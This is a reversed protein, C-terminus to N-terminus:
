HKNNRIIHIINTCITCRTGESIQASQIPTLLKTSCDAIATRVNAAFGTPWGKHKCIRAGNDNVVIVSDMLGSVNDKPVLIYTDCRKAVHYMTFSSLIEDCPVLNETLTKIGLMQRTADDMRFLCKATLMDTPM